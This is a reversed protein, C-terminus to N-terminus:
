LYGPLSNLEKKNRIRMRRRFYKDTALFSSHQHLSLTVREAVTTKEIAEQTIQEIEEEMEEVQQARDQDLSEVEKRYGKQEREVEVTGEEFYEPGLVEIGLEVIQKQVKEWERWLEKIEAEKKQVM